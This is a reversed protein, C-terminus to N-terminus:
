PPLHERALELGHLAEAAHDAPDWRLRAALEAGGREAAWPLHQHPEDTEGRRSDVPTQAARADAVHLLLGAAGLDLEGEEEGVDAPRRRQGLLGRRLLERAQDSTEVADRGGLDVLLVPDDV